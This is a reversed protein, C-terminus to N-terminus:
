GPSYSTSPPPLGRYWAQLAIPLRDSVDWGFHHFCEVADALPRMMPAPLADIAEDPDLLHERVLACAWAHLGDRERGLAASFWPRAPLHVTHGIGALHAAEDLLAARAGRLWETHGGAAAVVGEPMPARHLRLLRLLHKELALAERRSDTEVLFAQDIDFLAHFRPSFERARRLPDSSSGLKLWDEGRMPLAYVFGGAGM